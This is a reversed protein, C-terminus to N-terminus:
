APAKGGAHSIATAEEPDLGVDVLADSLAMIDESDDGGGGDQPPQEVVEYGQTSPAAAGQRDASVAAAPPEASEDELIGRKKKPEAPEHDHLKHFENDVQEKDVHGGSYASVYESLTSQLAQKTDDLEKRLVENQRKIEEVDASLSATRETLAGVHETPAAAEPAAPPPEPPQAKVPMLQRYSTILEELHKELSALEAADRHLYAAVVHRYFTKKLKVLRKANEAAQADDQGYQEKIQGQVAALQAPENEKIAKVLAAVARTGRRGNRLYVVMMAALAILLVANIEAVFGLLSASLTM